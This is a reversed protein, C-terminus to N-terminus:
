PAEVQLHGDLFRGEVRRGSPLLACARGRQCPLARGPQEVVLAGLRLRVSIPQGPAPGLRVAGEDLPAGAALRRAASAGGPAAALLRRGAVVEREEVVLAGDLPEGAELARTTVAAPGLVRVRAWAYGQCAAGAADRGSFRLAARGSAEVAALAEWSEARCGAGSSTAVGALEARAGAPALAADVAAQPSAAAALLLPLALTALLM